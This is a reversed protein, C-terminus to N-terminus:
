LKDVDLPRTKGEEHEVLAEDALKGLVDESGAFSKEWKRESELEELVWQALVNQEIESLKAAEQFAKELLKTM